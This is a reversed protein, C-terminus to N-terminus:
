VTVGPDGAAADQNLSCKALWAACACVKGEGPVLVVRVTGAVVVSLGVCTLVGGAASPRWVVGVADGVVDRNDRGPSVVDGKTVGEGASDEENRRVRVKGREIGLPPPRVTLRGSAPEPEPEAACGSGVAGLELELEPSVVCGTAVPELELAPGFGFELEFEDLIPLPSIAAITRPSMNASPRHARAYKKHFRLFPLPRSLVNM